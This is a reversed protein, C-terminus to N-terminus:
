GKRRDDEDDSGVAEDIAATIAGTLDGAPVAISEGYNDEGRDREPEPATAGGSFGFENPEDVETTRTGNEPTTEQPQESM